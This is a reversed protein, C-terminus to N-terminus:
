QSSEQKEGIQTGKQLAEIAEIIAYNKDVWVSGQKHLLAVIEKLIKKREEVRAQELLKVYYDHMEDRAKGIAQEVRVEVMPWVKALQAQAISPCNGSCGRCSGFGRIIALCVDKDGQAQAMEEDTLLAEGETLRISM